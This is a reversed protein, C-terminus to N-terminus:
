VATQSRQSQITTDKRNTNYQEKCITINLNNDTDSIQYWAEFTKTAGSVKKQVKEEILEEVIPQKIGRSYRIINFNAPYMNLRGGKLFYKEKLKGDDDLVQCKKVNSCNNITSKEIEIDGLYASFYAGINDCDNLQKIKVFGHGWIEALLSNPIFPARQQWIYFMHIHWAGRGQPECVVIYEPKDYGNKKCFYQFRKNFLAFDEYLRKTDMMNEKYTLTIWRCNQPDTVNTNIIARIKALTKYMGIRNDARTDHHVCEHLTGDALKVYHDKDIMQITQKNNKQSRYTVEIINGMTVVKRRTCNKEQASSLKKVTVAM